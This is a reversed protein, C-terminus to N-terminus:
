FRDFFILPVVNEYHTNLDMFLGPHQPSHRGEFLETIRREIVKFFFLFINKFTSCSVSSCCLTSENMAVSGHAFYLDTSSCEVFNQSCTWLSWHILGSLTGIHLKELTFKDFLAKKTWKEAACGVCMVKNLKRYFKLRYRRSAEEKLSLVWM